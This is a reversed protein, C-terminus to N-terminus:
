LAQFDSRGHADLVVAEGDLIATDAKLNRLGDYILQFRDTWDKGNRTILKTDGHKVHALFRYGDFKIEHVWDDGSPPKAALVALQPSVELPWHTKAASRSPLTVTAMAFHVRPSNADTRSGNANSGRPMRARQAIARM